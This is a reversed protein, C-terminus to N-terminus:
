TKIFIESLLVWVPSNSHIFLRIATIKDIPPVEGEAVGNVFAGIRIYGDKTQEYTSLLGEKMKELVLKNAPQVEVSTNFLKDGPHEINGSRFLYRKVTVPQHFSITIHDGSVPTLAWFFGQGYYAKEISFHQYATLSMTIDASPNQNVRHLIQKGFDNDKLNQIKGPLSSHTGVHQFQSPKYRIRLSSKQRDCHKADKEPHCVKVWLMHDLLWDIPKDKYFMLIFEVLVPLDSAKFMKGIFGLHSFEIVMWEVLTQQLAVNKMTQFYGTRAILDDELQVYFRGKDQAYLMLFSYDLNQKTRWKVRQQTDGFTEKLDTFNPYFGPSPSVVELLGSQVESPFGKKIDAALSNVYQVDAEAVFIIILCDSREEQSLEYVLSNLTDMLYNQKVRKVTPIGLVLSVNTREQGIAVNPRLSDESQTLHPLYYYINSLHYKHNETVNVNKKTEKTQNRTASWKEAIIRRISQLIGTLEQSARQNVAEVTQLRRQLELFQSRVEEEGTDKVKDTTTYWSFSLFTGFLLFIM